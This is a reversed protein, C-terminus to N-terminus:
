GMIVIFRPSVMGCSDIVHLSLPAMTSKDVAVVMLIMADIFLTGTNARVVVPDLSPMTVISQCGASVATGPISSNSTSTVQGCGNATWVNGASPTSRTFM